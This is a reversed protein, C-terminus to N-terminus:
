HLYRGLRTRDIVTIGTSKQLEQGAAASLRATTVLIGNKLSQDEMHQLFSTVPIMGLDSNAKLFTVILPKSSTRSVCIFNKEANPDMSGDKLEERVSCDLRSIIKLVAEHLQEGSATMLGEISSVKPSSGGGSKMQSKLLEIDMKPMNQKLIGIKVINSPLSDFQQIHIKSLLEAAKDKQGSQFYACGLFYVINRDAPNCKYAAELESIAKRLDGLDLLALAYYFHADASKYDSRLALDFAEQSSQLDGQSGYIRGLTTLAAANGPNIRLVEGAVRFAEEYNTAKLTLRLINEIISLRTVERSVCGQDYMEKFVSLAMALNKNKEYLQALRLNYGASKPHADILRRVVHIAESFNGSKELEFLKSTLKKESNSFFTLWIVVVILVSVSGVIAFVM